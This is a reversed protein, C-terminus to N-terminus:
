AQKKTESIRMFLLDFITVLSYKDFLVASPRLIESLLLLIISLYISIIILYYPSKSLLQKVV